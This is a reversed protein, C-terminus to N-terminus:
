RKTRKGNQKKRKETKEMKIIKDFENCMIRGNENWQLWYFGIKLGQSLICYRLRWEPISAKGGLSPPSGAQGAFITLLLATAPLIFTVSEFRELEPLGYHFVIVVIIIIM